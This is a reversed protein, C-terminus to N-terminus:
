YAISPLFPSKSEMVTGGCYLGNNNIMNFLDKEKIQKPLDPIPTFSRGFASSDFTGEEILKEADLLHFGEYEIISGSYYTNIIQKIFKKLSIKWHKSITTMTSVLLNTWHQYIKLYMLEKPLLGDAVQEKLMIFLVLIVKYSM